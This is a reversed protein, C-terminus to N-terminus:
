AAVERVGMDLESIANHTNIVGPGTAVKWRAQVTYTGAALGSAVYAWGSFPVYINASTFYQYAVDYDVGNIRVGLRLGTSAASSFAEFRMTVYLKSSTAWKKVPFSTASLGPLDVYTASSMTGTTAFVKTGNEGFNLRAPTLRAGSQILEM